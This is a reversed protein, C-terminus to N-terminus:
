YYLQLQQVVSCIVVGKEKNDQDKRLTVQTVELAFDSLPPILNRSKRCFLQHHFGGVWPYLLDSIQPFLYM